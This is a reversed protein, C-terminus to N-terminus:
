KGQDAERNSGIAPPINRGTVARIGSRRESADKRGDISRIQRIYAATIGPWGRAALWSAIEPAATLDSDRLAVRVADAQSISDRLNMRPESPVMAARESEYQTVATAPDTEGTWVAHRFVPFTRLPWWFWRAGGFKVTRSEILGKAKLADRSNRRSYIGWLIPSMFSMMGTAVAAFTPKGNVAYHSYNLAAVIGAVFYSGIRLRFASDEAMLADAAMFTLFLAISELGAALGIDGILPWSMHDRIFALQGTFAILNCIVLPVATIILRRNKM